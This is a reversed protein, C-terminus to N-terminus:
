RVHRYLAALRDPSVGCRYALPFANVLLTDRVPHELFRRGSVRVEADARRITGIGRLRKSLELDEMLPLPPYGGVREFASRRVFLAQDGYPLRTYRSRVDALRLWCSAGRQWWKTPASRIDAVTHTKFAGGVCRADTLLRHIWLVADPPPLTDAHVFWLVDGSALEAGANQQEARGREACTVKLRGQLTPAMARARAVTDDESGGDVVIIENVPQRSLERLTSAIRLEEELTPVILSVKM